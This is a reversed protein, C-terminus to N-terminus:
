LLLSNNYDYKFNLKLKIVESIYIKIVGAGNIENIKLYSTM